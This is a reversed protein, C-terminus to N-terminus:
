PRSIIELNLGEREIMRRLKRLGDIQIQRVRERTLGVEKGVDELTSSEFGRLGFRRLLIEKQKGKLRDVWLDISKMFDSEQLRVAPDTSHEGPLLDLLSVDKEQNVPVDVSSTVTNHRLLQRIKKLPKGSRSAIEAATPARSLEETLDAAVRLCVNLEKMVHIPLRITRVQNMLARDISQKIWWTAYTSFRYGLEPNFKEVARILGLNGEEVLDLLTMGRNQYRKAITVVLRLNAEIMTKKSAADGAVVKRALVLEEEMTLLKRRGIENLYLAMPDQQEQSEGTSVTGPSERVECPPSLSAPAIDPPQKCSAPNDPDSNDPNSNGKIDRSASSSKRSTKQRKVQPRASLLPLQRSRPHYKGNGM